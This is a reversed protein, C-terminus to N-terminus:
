WSHNHKTIISMPKMAYNKNRISTIPNYAETIIFTDVREYFLM